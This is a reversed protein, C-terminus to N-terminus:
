CIHIQLAGAWRCCLHQRAATRVSGERARPRLHLPWGLGFWGLCSLVLAAWAPGAQLPVVTADAGGGGGGGELDCHAPLHALQAGAAALLAGKEELVLPLDVDLYHVGSLPLRWPRTGFGCGAPPPHTAPPFSPPICANPYLTALAGVGLCCAGLFRAASVSAGMQGVGHLGKKAGVGAAADVWEGSAAGLGM